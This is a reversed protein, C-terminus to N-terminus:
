SWAYNPPRWGNEYCVACTPFVQKVGDESYGVLGRTEIGTDIGDDIDTTIEKNCSACKTFLTKNNRAKIQSGRAMIKANGKKRM